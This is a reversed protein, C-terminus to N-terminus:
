AVDQPCIKGIQLACEEIFSQSLEVSFEGSQGFANGPEYRLHLFAFPSAIVDLLRNDFISPVADGIEFALNRGLARDGVLAAASGEDIIAERLLQPEIRRAADILKHRVCGPRPALDLLQLGPLGVNLVLHDLTANREVLQFLLM